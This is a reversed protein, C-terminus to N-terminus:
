HRDTGATAQRHRGPRKPEYKPRPDLSLAYLSKGNMRKGLVKSYGNRFKLNKPFRPLRAPKKHFGDLGMCREGVVIMLYELATMNPERNKEGELRRGWKTKNDPDLAFREKHIAEMEKHRVGPHREAERRIELVYDAVSKVRNFWTTAIGEFHTWDILWGMMGIKILTIHLDDESANRVERLEEDTCPCTRYNHGKDM